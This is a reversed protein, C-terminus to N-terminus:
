DKVNKNKKPKVHLKRYIDIDTHEGMKLKRIPFNGIDTLEMQYKERPLKLPKRTM